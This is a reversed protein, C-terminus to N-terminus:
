KEYLYIVPFDSFDKNDFVSLSERTILEVGSIKDTLIGKMDSGPSNVLLLEFDEQNSSVDSLKRLDLIEMNKEEIKRTFKVQPDEILFDTKIIRIVDKLEIAFVANGAYLFIIKIWDKVDAEDDIKGNHEAFTHPLKILVTRKTLTKTNIQNCQAILESPEFIYILGGHPLLSVGSILSFNKMLSGLNKSVIDRYDMLSDVEIALRKEGSGFILLSTKKNKRKDKNINFLIGPYVVPIKVGNYLLYEKTKEQKEPLRVRVIKEISTGPLAFIFKDLTFLLAQTVGLTTPIKLIFKTGKGPFTEINIIGNLSKLNAKVVDLGVGRGSIESVEEKTSFGPSFIFNLKEEESLKEADKDTIIGRRVASDKIKESDIGKGDDEVIMLIENGKPIASLKITGVEAKGESLREEKTELGHDISNRVLHLFPDKLKELIRKDVTSNEGEIIVKVEKGTKRKIDRITREMQNFLTGTSVMRVKLIEYQITDALLDSREFFYKINEYCLNISDAQSVLDESFQALLKRVEGNGRLEGSMYKRIPDFRTQTQEIVSRLQEIRELNAKRFSKESTLESVLNIINDIKNARIKISDEESFLRFKEGSDTKEEPVIEETKEDSSKGNFIDIRKNIRRVAEEPSQKSEIKVIIEKFSDLSDLLLDILASNIERENNRVESLYSEFSHALGAVEAYGFTSSSGKLSHFIRYIEEIVDGNEPQKELSILLYSLNDIKERVDEIFIELVEQIEEESM